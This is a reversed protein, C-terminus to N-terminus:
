RMRARVEMDAIMDDPWQISNRPTSPTSMIISMCAGVYEDTCELGFIGCLRLIGARPDLVFEESKIDLWTDGPDLGKKKAQQALAVKLEHNTQVLRKKDDVLEQLRLRTDPRLQVFAGHAETANFPIGQPYQLPHLKPHTLFPSLGQFCSM